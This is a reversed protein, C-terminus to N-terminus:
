KTLEKVKNILATTDFPKTIYGEAGLERALHWDFNQGQCSLILIRAHALLPDSKISRCVELGNMGPMINDLLIIDPMEEKATNLAEQGNRARVITYEPMSSVIASLLSLIPEEDDVILVKVM